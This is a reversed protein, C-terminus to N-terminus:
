GWGDQMRLLRYVCSQTLVLPCPPFPLGLPLSSVPEASISGWWLPEVTSAPCTYRQGGRSQSHLHLFSAKGHSEYFQYTLIAVTKLCTNLSHFRTTVSCLDDAQLINNNNNNNNNNNAAAATPRQALSSVETPRQKMM